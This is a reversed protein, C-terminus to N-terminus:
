RTATRSTASRPANKIRDQISKRKEENHERMAARYRAKAENERAFYMTVYENWRIETNVNISVAQATELNYAGLGFAAVGVGRLYDGQPTSGAGVWNFQAHAPVAAAFLVALVKLAVRTM